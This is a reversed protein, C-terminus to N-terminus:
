RNRIMENNSNLSASELLSPMVGVRELSRFNCDWDAKKRLAASM